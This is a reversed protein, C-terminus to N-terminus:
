AQDTHADNDDRWSPPPPASSNQLQSLPSTSHTWENKTQTHLLSSQNESQFVYFVMYCEFQLIGVPTGPCAQAHDGGRNGKAQM